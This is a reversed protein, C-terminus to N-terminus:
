GAALGASEVQEETLTLQPFTPSTVSQNARYSRMEYEGAVLTGIWLTPQKPKSILFAMVQEHPGTPEM